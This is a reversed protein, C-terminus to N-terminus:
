RDLKMLRRAGAFIASERDAFLDLITFHNAGAAPLDEAVVSRWRQALLANQRRYETSELSGVSTFVPSRTAPPLFAPSVHLASAEDLRLDDRFGELGLLPRLDYLGSLALAGKFLNKPLDTEYAPWLATMMMAALHAGSSHGAVYLREEDMGYQEAHRYLWSSARLMQCVIEEISAGPALDHNVLILSVGADVWIPALFSFNRKDMSRWYGGHIFMMASGDGKRAPFIDLREGSSSGYERDLYCIMTARARSAGADWRQFIQPHEPVRARNDYERALMRDGAPVPTSPM